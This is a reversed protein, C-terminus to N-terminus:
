GRVESRKPFGSPSVVPQELLRASGMLKRPDENFAKDPHEQLFQYYNQAVERADALSGRRWRREVATGGGVTKVLRYEEVTLYFFNPEAVRKSNTRLDHPVSFDMYGTQKWDVAVNKLVENHDVEKRPRFLFTGFETRYLFASVDTRYLYALSAAVILVILIALWYSLM